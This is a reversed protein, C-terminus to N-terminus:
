KPVREGQIKITPPTRNAADTGTLNDDWEKTITITSPHKWIAYLTLASPDVNAAKIQAGAAYSTGTGDAKTNWEKFVWGSETLAAAANTAETYKMTVAAPATGHGNANYTLTATREQWVAKFMQNEARVPVTTGIKIGSDVNAGVNSLSTDSLIYLHIPDKAVYSGDSIWPNGGQYVAYQGVAHWWYGANGIAYAALCSNNKYVLGKFTSAGWSLSVAEFGDATTADAAPPNKLISNTQRWRNYGSKGDATQLYEYKGNLTLKEVQGLMSFAGLENKAKAGAENVFYTTAPEQYMLEIWQPDDAKVPIWCVFNYGTRSVSPASVTTGYNQTFSSTGSVTGGNGDFTVTKSNPTWQAVLHYSGNSNASIQKGPMLPYYGTETIKYGTFTYGARTPTNSPVNYVENYWKTGNGPTGSGGNADYYITYSTKAPITFAGSPKSYQTGRSSGSPVYIAGRVYATQASHAKNIPVHVSGVMSVRASGGGGYITFGSSRKWSGLNQWGGNGYKIQCYAYSGAPCWYSSSSNELLRMYVTWSTVRYQGGNVNAYGNYWVEVGWDDTAGSGSNYGSFSLDTGYAPAFYAITCMLIFLIAAIICKTRKQIGKIRDRLQEMLFDKRVRESENMTNNYEISNVGDLHYEAVMIAM